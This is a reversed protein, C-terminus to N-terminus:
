QRLNEDSSLNGHATVRETVFDTPNGLGSREGGGGGDGGDDRLLDRYGALHLYAFLSSSM